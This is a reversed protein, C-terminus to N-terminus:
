EDEEVCRKFCDLLSQLLKEDGAELKKITSKLEEKNFTISVEKSEDVVEWKGDKDARLLMGKPEYDDEYYEEMM